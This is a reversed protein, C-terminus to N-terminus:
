EASFLPFYIGSLFQLPVDFLYIVSDNMEKTKQYNKKEKKASHAVSQRYNTQTVNCLHHKLTDKFFIYIYRRVSPIM